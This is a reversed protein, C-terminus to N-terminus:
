VINLEKLAYATYLNDPNTSSFGPVNGVTEGDGYSGGSSRPPPSQSIMIPPSQSGTETPTIESAKIKDIAASAVAPSMSSEEQAIQQPTQPKQPAAVTSSAPTATSTSSSTSAAAPKATATGAKKHAQAEKLYPLHLNEKYVSWPQWNSGGSLKFAAKANKVPDYLDEYKSIGFIFYLFGSASFSVNIKLSCRM